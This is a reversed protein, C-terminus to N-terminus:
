VIGLHHSIVRFMHLVTPRFTLLDINGISHELNRKCNDSFGQKIRINPALSRGESVREYGDLAAGITAKGCKNRKRVCPWCWGITFKMLRNCSQIRCDVVDDFSPTALWM